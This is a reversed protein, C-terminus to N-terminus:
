ALRLVVADVDSSQRRAARLNNTLGRAAGVVYLAHRFAAATVASNDTLCESSFEEIPLRRNRTLGVFTTSREGFQYPIIRQAEGSCFCSAWIGQICLGLHLGVTGGDGLRYPALGSRETDTGIHDNRSDSRGNESATMDARSASIILSDFRCLGEISWTLQFDRYRKGVNSLSWLIRPAIDHQRREHTALDKVKCEGLIFARYSHL